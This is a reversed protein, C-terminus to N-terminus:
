EAASRASVRRLESAARRRRCANRRNWPLGSKESLNKQGWWYVFSPVCREGVREGPAAASARMACGGHARDHRAHRLLVDFEGPRQPLEAYVQDVGGLAPRHFKALLHTCSADVVAGLGVCGGVGFGHGRTRSNVAERERERKRSERVSWAHPWSRAVDSWYPSDASYMARALPVGTSTSRSRTPLESACHWAAAARAWMQVIPWAPALPPPPPLPPPAAALALATLMARSHRKSITFSPPTVGSAAMRREPPVAACSCAAAAM